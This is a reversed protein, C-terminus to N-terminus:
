CGPTSTRQRLARTVVMEMGRRQRGPRGGAARPVRGRLRLATQDMQARRGPTYASVYAGSQAIVIETQGDNDIDAVVIGPWTRNSTGGARWQLAGTQGDLAVLSYASAIIEAQPDGDINVVAPSSYWGTECWSSYCGGHQWKLVPPDVSAAFWPCTTKIQSPRNDVPPPERRSPSSACASSSSPSAACDYLFYLM